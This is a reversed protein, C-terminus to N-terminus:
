LNVAKQDFGDGGGHQKVGHGVRASFLAGHQGQGGGHGCLGAREFAQAQQHHLVVQDVLLHRLFQQTRQARLHHQGGVALQAHFGHGVGLGHKIGHQHVQLHRHHVAVAGGAFNAGFQSQGLQGDNGHRGVGHGAVAGGAQGGAHVLMHAFGKVELVEGFHHQLDRAALGARDAAGWLRGKRRRWGGGQFLAHIYVARQLPQAVVGAQIGADQGGVQFFNGGQGVLQVAEHEGTVQDARGAQQVRQFAERGRHAGAIQRTHGFLQFADQFRGIGALRM